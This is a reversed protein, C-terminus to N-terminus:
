LRAWQTKLLCEILLVQSGRDMIVKRRECNSRFTRILFHDYDIHSVIEQSVIKRSSLHHTIIAIIRLTSIGGAGHFKHSTPPPPLQHGTTVVGEMTVM